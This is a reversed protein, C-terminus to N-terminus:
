PVPGAEPLSSGAGNAVGTDYSAMRDASCPATTRVTTTDVAFNARMVSSVCVDETAAVAFVITDSGARVSVETPAISAQAGDIFVLQPDFRALEEARAVGFEGWEAYLAGAHNAATRLALEAQVRYATEITPTEGAGLPALTEVSAEAAADASGAGDEARLLRYAGIGVVV